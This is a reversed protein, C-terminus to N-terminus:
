TVDSTVGSTSKASLVRPRNIQTVLSWVLKQLLPDNTFITRDNESKLFYSNPELHSILLQEDDVGLIILPLRFDAKEISCIYRLERILHQTNFGDSTTINIEVSRDVLEDFMKNFSRYLLVLGNENTVIRVSKKAKSLMERIKRLTEERGSIAWLSSRRLIEKNKTRRFADELTSILSSLTEVRDQYSKLYAGLAIRPPIPSFKRPESPIETALGMEILKRLVGYVKTRPVGSLVSLTRAKAQGAEVLSVYVKAEYESLGLYECLRQWTAKIILHRKLRTGKFWAFYLCRDNM